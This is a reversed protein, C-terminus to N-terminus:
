RAPDQLLRGALHPPIQGSAALWRIADALTEEIPRFEVGLEACSARSDCPRCGTVYHAADATLPYDFSPRIRKIGDVIQGAVHLLRPRVRLRRVRRGTLREVLDAEEEWRLFHGGALFRRPGRGPGQEVIAVLMRAVDRVDVGCLGGETIVWTFRLRDRLGKSAATPGPDDPGYIGAPYVISIPAGSQQLERAHVEGASKSRGYETKPVVIPDDITHMPGPPPFTTAISSVHVVPDLGLELAQGLVCRIGNLNTEFVSPSGATQEGIQVAAATHIAAQCGSAAERVCAPDTMDGVVVEHPDCDASAVVRRLKDPNRVLLRVSHGAARLARLTHSGLFGTAGTLFVKM